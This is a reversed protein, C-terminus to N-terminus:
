VGVEEESSVVTVVVEVMVVVKMAVTETTDM